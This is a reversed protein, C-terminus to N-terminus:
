QQWSLRSNTDAVAAWSEGVGTQVAREGSRDPDKGAVVSEFEPNLPHPKSPM